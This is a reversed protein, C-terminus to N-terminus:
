KEREVYLVTQFPNFSGLFCTDSFGFTSSGTHLGALAPTCLPTTNFSETIWPYARCLSTPSPYAANLIFDLFENVTNLPTPPHTNVPKTNVTNLPPSPHTNPPKVNVTNLSPSPHTNPPKVNVINPPPSPHTNTPKTNVTNFSENIWRYARYL